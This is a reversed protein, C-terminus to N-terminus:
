TLAELPLCVEVRTGRGPEGTIRFEGGLSEARERMGLIGLHEESDASTPASLGPGADSIVLRLGEATAAAEVRQDRAGAHRWANTLAEQIIRYVTIKVPLPVVQPIGSIDMQVSSGTRREHARVVKRLTEGLDLTELEPLGMGGSIARIEALAHDLSAKVQSFEQDDVKGRDLRLLAFGLDQAPGDHLEASIRRLFQENRATTGRTAKRVRQHLAKNQELLTRLQAVQTKLENRQGKLTRGAQRVFGALLLYMVLTAAAVVLWSNRQSEAINKDLSDLTQYFEVAALIENTGTRRVPSYTELRRLGKDTDLANEAKGLTSIDSAVWGHLARRLDSDVGFSQGVLSSQTAYVVKGTPSWVKIATIHQGLGNDRVLHDLSQTHEPSLVGGSALEQLDPEVISSVYLSTYAATQHIVGAQIQDSVWWGIGVMGFVLIVLSALLFRHDWTFREM